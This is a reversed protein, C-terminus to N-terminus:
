SKRVTGRCTSSPSNRSWFPKTREATRVILHSLGPLTASVHSDFGRHVLSCGPLIVRLLGALTEGKGRRALEHHRQRLPLEGAALQEFGVEPANFAEVRGEVRDDGEVGLAGQSIRVGRVARCGSTM